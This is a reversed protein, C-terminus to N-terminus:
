SYMDNSSAGWPTRNVFERVINQIKLLERVLSLHCTECNWSGLKTLERVVILLYAPNVFERVLKEIKM